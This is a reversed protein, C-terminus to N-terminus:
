QAAGHLGFIFDNDWLQYKQYLRELICQLMIFVQARPSRYWLWMHHFVLATQVRHSKNIFLQSPNMRHMM